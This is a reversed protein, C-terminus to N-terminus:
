PAPSGPRRRVARVVRTGIRRVAAPLLAAVGALACAALAEWWRYGAALTLPVNVLIAGAAAVLPYRAMGYLLGAAVAAPALIVILLVGAPGPVQQGAPIAPVRARRLMHSAGPALLAAALEIAVLWRAFTGSLGAAYLLAAMEGGLAAAAILTAPATDAAAAFLPTVAVPALIFAAALMVNRDFGSAAAALGGIAVAAVSIVVVLVITRKM